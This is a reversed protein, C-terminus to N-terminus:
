NNKMPKTGFKFGAGVVGYAPFLQDITSPYKEYGCKFQLYYRKFDVGCVIGYKGIGKNPQEWHNKASPNIESLYTQSYHYHRFLIIEYRVDLAIYYKQKYIGPSLALELTLDHVRFYRNKRFISSSAVCLPLRFYNNNMLDIQFGKRVSRRTFFRNSIPLSIDLLGIIKRKSFRFKDIRAIGLTTNAFGNDMGTHIYSVNRYSGFNSLVQCKIAFGILLFFLLIQNSKRM